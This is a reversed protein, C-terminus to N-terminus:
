RRAVINNTRTKILDVFESM